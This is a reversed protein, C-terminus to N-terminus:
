RGQKKRREKEAYERLDKLSMKSFDQSVVSSANGSLGNESPRSKNAQIAQVTQTQAQRSAQTVANPIISDWHCAMYAATTDGNNVACLRRFKEDQMERDLDFEPFRAKTKEANQRLMMIQQRMQEQRQAEANQAEQVKIKREMSVIRRAEEPTIDHEVAYNEYYSNDEDIRRALDDLFTESTADLSYKSAVTELATRMKASEEEMGKYKKLRDGITKEMYAQHEAKYDDSKILDSYSMKTQTEPKNETTSQANDSHKKVAAQYTKRAREPVSSPVEVGSETGEAGEGTSGGDGGEAFLQLNLLYELM